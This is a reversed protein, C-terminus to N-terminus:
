RRVASLRLAAGVRLAVGHTGKFHHLDIWPGEMVVKPQMTDPRVATWLAKPDDLTKAFGEPDDLWQQCLYLPDTSADQACTGCLEYQGDIKGHTAKKDCGSSACTCPM